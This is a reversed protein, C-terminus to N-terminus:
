ATVNASGREILVDSHKLRSAHRSTICRIPAHSTASFLAAMAATDSPIEAVGWTSGSGGTILNDYVFNQTANDGDLTRIAVEPVDSTQANAHIVNDSVEIHTTGQLNVGSGGNGHIETRYVGGYEIGRVRVGDGANDSVDGGIVSFFGTDIGSEDHVYIGDGENGLRNEDPVASAGLAMSASAGKDM